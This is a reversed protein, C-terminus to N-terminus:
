VVCLHHPLKFLCVAEQNNKDNYQSKSLQKIASQNLIYQNLLFCCTVTEITRNGILITWSHEAITVTWWSHIPFVSRWVVLQGSLFEGDGKFSCVAPICLHTWQEQVVSYSLEVSICCAKRVVYMILDISFLQVM